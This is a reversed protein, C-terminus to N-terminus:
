ESEEQEAADWCRGCIDSGYPWSGDKPAACDACGWDDEDAQNM